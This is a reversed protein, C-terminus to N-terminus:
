FHFLYKREVRKTSQLSSMIRYSTYYQYQISTINLQPLVAARVGWLVPLVRSLAPDSRSKTERGSQPGSHVHGSEHQSDTQSDGPPCEAVCLQLFDTLRENLENADKVWINRAGSVCKDCDKKLYETKSKPKEDTSMSWSTCLFQMLLYCKTSHFPFLSSPKAM